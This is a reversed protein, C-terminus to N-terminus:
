WELSMYLLEALQGAGDKGKKKFLARNTRSQNRSYLVPTRHAHPYARRVRVWRGRQPDQGRDRQSGVGKDDGASGHLALPCALGAELAVLAITVALVALAAAPPTVSQRGLGDQLPRCSDATRGRRDLAPRLGM